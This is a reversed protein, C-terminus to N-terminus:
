HEAWRRGNTAKRFAPPVTDGTLIFGKENRALEPPLWETHPQAGIMALLYHTQVTTPEASGRNRLVASELQRAGRLESVVTEVHVSIREDRTIRDLLYISM